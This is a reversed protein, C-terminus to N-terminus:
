DLFDRIRRELVSGDTTQCEWVVLAEWNNERLLRLNTKDRLMTRELKPQWYDLNSRPRHALASVPAELFEAGNHNKSFTEGFKGNIDSGLLVNFGAQQFGLSLGGAGCFLDVVTPDHM